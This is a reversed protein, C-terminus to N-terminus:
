QKTKISSKTPKEEFKSTSIYNGNPLVKLVKYKRGGDEFIDGVKMGKNMKKVWIKTHFYLDKISNQKGGAYMVYQMQTLAM